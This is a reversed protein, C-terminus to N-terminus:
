GSARDAATRARAAKKTARAAAANARVAKSSKVTRAAGAYRKQAAQASTGLQEGIRRWSVGDARAASVAKAVQREAEARAVAAQRLRRADIEEVSVRDDDAPEYAEFRDALEDAHDLIEQLTRPM